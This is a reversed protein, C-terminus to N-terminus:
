VMTHTHARASRTPLVRFIREKSADSNTRTRFTVDDLIAAGLVGIPFLGIFLIIHVRSSLHVDLSRDFELV